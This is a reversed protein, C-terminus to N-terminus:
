IEQASTLTSRSQRRPKPSEAVSEDLSSLREVERAFMYGFGRETLIVQPARPDVELKRRLRLVQVDVSRDFVDEHMRTARMLHERSLPRQPADLFAALLSYEAKTLSVPVEDPDTLRRARRDLQWGCFRFRGRERDNRPAASGIGGRRLVARIRALLERLGFPKTLYDDAGLELGVARDIDDCRHGTAIIVPVDSHSRIDRLLDLGGRQGFSLDLLVLSCEDAALYRAVDTRGSALVPRLGNAKLYASVMQETALDHDVVLIRRPESIQEKMYTEPWSLYTPLRLEASIGSWTRGASSAALEGFDYTEVEHRVM